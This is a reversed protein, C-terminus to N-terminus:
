IGDIMFNDIGKQRQARASDLHTLYYSIPNDSLSWLRYRNAPNDITESRPQITGGLVSTHQKAMKMDDYTLRQNPGPGVVDYVKHENWGSQDYGYAGVIQVFCSWCALISVVVLRRTRACIWPVLPVALFALLIILDVIPRYGYCWGGWWDFWKAAIVFMGATALSLAQLHYQKRDRWVRVMGWVAVVAVPSYVLLGRAPSVLLGLAGFYFPTQWLDPNGTRMMAIHPGKGIQGTSFPNDFVVLGYLVLLVAVPLAGALVRVMARRDRLGLMLVVAALVLITTPRCAVALSFSLGALVHLPRQPRLLYYCGMALFLQSPGHQFLAQSSTSWVCTCLGYVLALLFARRSGLTALALFFLFVASGAVSAAAVFKTTQWLRVPHQELAPDFLKVAAVAPLALLGAGVGFTDAFVGPWRTESLCYYPSITRLRGARQHERMTQGDLVFDWSHFRATRKGEPYTMKQVFLHPSDEVTFTLRGRTLLQLPLYVNASADNNALSDGNAMYIVFLLAGLFMGLQRSSAARAPKTPTGTRESKRRKKNVTM